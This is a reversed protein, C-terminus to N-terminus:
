LTDYLQPLAHKIVFYEYSRKSQSLSFELAKKQYAMNYQPQQPVQPHM